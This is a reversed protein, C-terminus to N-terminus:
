NWGGASVEEKASEKVEEVKVNKGYVKVLSCSSVLKLFGQEVFHNLIKQAVGANLNYKEAINTKTVCVSNANEKQIRALLTADISVARKVTDKQKGKTWKKKEKSSTKQIKNAQATKSVPAKKVM